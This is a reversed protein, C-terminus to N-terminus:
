ECRKKDKKMEQYLSILNRRTMKKLNYIPKRERAVNMIRLILEEKNMLNLLLEEEANRNANKEGCFPCKATYDRLYQGCWECKRYSM